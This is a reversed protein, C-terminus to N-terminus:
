MAANKPENPAATSAAHVLAGPSRASQLLASAITHPQLLLGQSAALGGSTTV